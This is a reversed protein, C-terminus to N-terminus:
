VKKAQALKKVVQEQKELLSYTCSSKNINKLIVKDLYFTMNNTIISQLLKGAVEM